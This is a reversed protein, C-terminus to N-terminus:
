QASDAARTPAATTRPQWWHTPASTVTFRRGTIDTPTIRVVVDKNGEEWPSPGPGLGLDHEDLDVIEPQGKLVVSWAITGYVNLGDAELAVVGGAAMADAKTGPGTRFILTGDEPLYNVPFIEPVGGATVVALRGVSASRLYDWCDHVSLVKTAAGANASEM